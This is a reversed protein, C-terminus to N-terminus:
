LNYLMDRNNRVPEKKSRWKKNLVNNKLMDSLSSKIKNVYNGFNIRANDFKSHGLIQFSNSHEDSIM